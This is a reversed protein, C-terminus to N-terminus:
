LDGAFVVLVFFIVFLVAVGHVINRWTPGGIVYAIQGLLFFFSLITDIVALGIALALRFLFWAFGLGYAKGITSDDYAWRTMAYPEYWSESWGVNWADRRETWWNPKKERIGAGPTRKLSVSKVSGNTVDILVQRDVIQVTTSGNLEATFVGEGSRVRFIRDEGEDRDRLIVVIQQSDPPDISYDAGISFRGVLTVIESEGEIRFGGEASYVFRVPLYPPQYGTKVDTQGGCGVVLSAFIVALLVGFRRHVNACRAGHTLRSALSLIAKRRGRTELRLSMARRGLTVPQVDRGSRSVLACEVRREARSRLGRGHLDLTFMGSYGVTRACLESTEGATQQGCYM